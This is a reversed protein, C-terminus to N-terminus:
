DAPPDPAALDSLLSYISAGISSLLVSVKKGNAIKNAVFYLSVRELYAKISPIFEQLRGYQNVMAYNSNEDGSINDCLLM